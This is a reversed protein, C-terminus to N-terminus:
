FWLPILYWKFHEIPINFGIKKFDKQLQSLYIVSSFELGRTNLEMSEWDTSVISDKHLIFYDMAADTGGFTYQFCTDEPYEEELLYSTEDASLFDIDKEYGSYLIGFGITASLNYGM